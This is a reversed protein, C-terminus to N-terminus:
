RFDTARRRTPVILARWLPRWPVRGGCCAEPSAGTRHDVVVLGQQALDVLRQAALLEFLHPFAVADVDETGCSKQDCEDAAVLDPLGALGTQRLLAPGAVLGGHLKDLGALRVLRL